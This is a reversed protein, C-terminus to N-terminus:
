IFLIGPVNGVFNGTIPDTTGINIRLRTKLIDGSGNADVVTSGFRKKVRGRFVYANNLVAFADDPILWPKVNNVLGGTPPAILFRQVPM